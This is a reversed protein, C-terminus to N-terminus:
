RKTGEGVVVISENLLNFEGDNKLYIFNERGAGINLVAGAYNYFRGDSTIYKSDDDEFEKYEYGMEEGFGAFRFALTMNSYNETKGYNRLYYGDMYMEGYNQIGVPIVLFNQNNQGEVAMYKWYNQNKNVTYRSSGDTNTWPTYSLYTFDAGAYNILMGYQNVSFRNGELKVTAYNKFEGNFTFATVGGAAEEMRTTISILGKNYNSVINNKADYLQNLTLTPNCVIAAGTIENAYTKYTGVMEGTAENKLIGNVTITSSFNIKGNNILDTKINATGITITGHETKIEGNNIFGKTATVNFQSAVNSVHVGHTVEIYGNNTFTAVDM